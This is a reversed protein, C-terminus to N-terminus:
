LKLEEPFSGARRITEVIAWIQIANGVGKLNLDDLFLSRESFTYTAEHLARNLPGDEGDRRDRKEGFLDLAETMVPELWKDAAERAADWEDVDTM